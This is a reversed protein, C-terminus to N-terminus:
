RGDTMDCAGGDKDFLGSFMTQDIQIALLSVTNSDLACVQGLELRDLIDELILFTIKSIRQPVKRVM